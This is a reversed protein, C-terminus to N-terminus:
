DVSTVRSGAFGKMEPPLQDSAQTHMKQSILESFQFCARGEMSGGGGFLGGCHYNLYYM